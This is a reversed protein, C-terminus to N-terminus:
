IKAAQLIARKVAVHALHIKYANKGLSRANAVAAKGAADATTENIPRNLIAEEAEKSRWPVPAVHGLVIRSGRVQGGGPMILAVSATALPWDFAAKQRVEYHGYNGGYHPNLKTAPDTVTVTVPPPPVMIETVMENPRLDHERENESKPIVYFKELPLERKGNPGFIRIRAGAAILAPAISSPSVFYAPGDNGLIAHYRYEITTSPNFPNPFNQHLEFQVPIEEKNSSVESVIESMPRRWVGFDYTGALLSTDNVVFSRVDRNEMGVLTWSTGDNNSLFIGGYASAFLNVGDAKLARVYWSQLGVQIWSM